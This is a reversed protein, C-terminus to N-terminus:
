PPTEGHGALGPFRSRLQSRCKAGVAQYRPNRVPIRTSLPPGNGTSNAQVALGHARMCAALENLALRAQPPM